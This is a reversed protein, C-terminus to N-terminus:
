LLAGVGAATSLIRIEADKGAGVQSVTVGRSQSATLLLIGNPGGEAKKLDITTNANLAVNSGDGFTVSTAGGLGTEIRDGAAVPLGSRAAEAQGDSHVVTATGQTSGIAGGISGSQAATGDASGLGAVLAVLSLWRGLRALRERGGLRGMRGSRM